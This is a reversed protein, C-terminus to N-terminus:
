IRSKCFARVLVMRARGLLSEAVVSHKEFRRCLDLREDRRGASYGLRYQPSRPDPRPDAGLAPSALIFSLFSLGLIITRRM